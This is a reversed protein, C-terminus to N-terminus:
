RGRTYKKWAAKSEPSGFGYKDTTFWTRLWADRQEETVNDNRYKRPDPLSTNLYNEKYAAFEADENVPEVVVEPAPVELARAKSLDVKIPEM